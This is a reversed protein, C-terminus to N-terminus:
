EKTQAKQELIKEGPLALPESTGICEESVKQWGLRVQSLEPNGPAVQYAHCLSWRGAQVWKGRQPRGVRGPYPDGQFVEPVWACMCPDQCLKPWSLLVYEVTMDVVCIWVYEYLIENLQVCETSAKGVGWMIRELILWYLFYKVFGGFFNTRLKLWYITSVILSWDLM